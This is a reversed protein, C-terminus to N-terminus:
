TRPNVPHPGQLDAACQGDDQAKMGAEKRSDKLCRGNGYRRCPLLAGTGPLRNGLLVWADCKNTDVARAM